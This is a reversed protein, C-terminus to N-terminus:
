RLVVRNRGADKGEYLAGDAIKILSSASEIDQGPRSVVGFTMSLMEPKGAKKRAAPDELGHDFSNRVLHLLPDALDEVMLKDLETEEGFVVLDM